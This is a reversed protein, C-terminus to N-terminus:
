GLTIQRKLFSIQYKIYLTLAPVVNQVSRGYGPVVYNAAPEFAEFSGLSKLHIVFGAYLGSNSFLQYESGIALEWWSATLNKRIVQEASSTPTTSNKFSSRSYRLGAYLNNRPTYFVFYDLGVNGYYGAATYSSKNGTSREQAFTQYGLTGSLQINKRFLISLNGAYKRAKQTFLNMALWGYDVAVGITQVLPVYPSQIIQQKVVLANLRVWPDEHTLKVPELLTPRKLLPPQPDETGPTAWAAGGMELLIALYLLVLRICFCHRSGLKM